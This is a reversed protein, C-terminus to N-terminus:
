FGGEWPRHLRRLAGTAGRHYHPLEGWFYRTRNGFPAIRVAWGGTPLKGFTMEWGLSWERAALGFGAVLDIPDIDPKALTDADTRDQETTAPDHFWQSWTLGNAQADQWSLGRAPALTFGTSQGQGEQNGNDGSGDGQGDDHKGDDQKKSCAGVSFTCVDTDGGGDGGSDDGKPQEERYRRLLDPREKGPDWDHCEFTTQNKVDTYPGGWSGKYNGDQDEIHGYVTGESITDQSLISCSVMTGTRDVGLIPNGLGYAFGNLGGGVGIPDASMFLGTSPDYYRAHLYTLGTEGDQREGLWGRSEVHSGSQDMTQGYPRYTRRHVVSATFDTVAQISGLHDAHLWYTTSGVRKAVTGLGAVTVYKTVVGNTVEYEDAPYLSTGNPGTKQLREGFGDYTFQTTGVQNIRNEADWVPTRGGGAVLNGNSDYTYLSGNVASPAHPRPQGPAPYTYNGVRSNYTIRGLEDYAFSQTDSPSDLNTAQTM